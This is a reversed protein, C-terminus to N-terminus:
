HEFTLSSKQYQATKVQHGATTGTLPLFHTHTNRVNSERMKGEDFLPNECYVMYKKEYTTLLNKGQVSEMEGKSYKKKGKHCFNQM